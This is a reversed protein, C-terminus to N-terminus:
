IHPSPPQIYKEFNSLVMMRGGQCTGGGKEFLLLSQAAMLAPRCKGNRGGRGGKGGPVNITMLFTLFINGNRGSREKIGMRKKQDRKEGRKPAILDLKLIFILISLTQYRCQRAGCGREKKGKGKSPLLNRQARLSQNIEGHLAEAKKGEGGRGGRRGRGKMSSLYFLTSYQNIPNALDYKGTKVVVGRTGEKKKRRGRGGRNKHPQITKLVGALFYIM